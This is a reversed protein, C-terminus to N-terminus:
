GAFQRQTLLYSRYKDKHLTSNLYLSEANKIPLFTQLRPLKLDHKLNHAICNMARYQSYTIGSDKGM